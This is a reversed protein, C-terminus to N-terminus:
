AWQGEDRVPFAVEVTARYTSISGDEVEKEESEVVEAEFGEDTFGIVRGAVENDSDYM